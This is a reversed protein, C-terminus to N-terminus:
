NRKRYKIQPIISEISSKILTPQYVITREELTPSHLRPYPTSDIGFLFFSRQKPVPVVQAILEILKGARTIGM